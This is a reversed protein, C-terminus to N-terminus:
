YKTCVQTLAQKLKLFVLFFLLVIRLVGGHGISVAREVVSVALGRKYLLAKVSRVKDM